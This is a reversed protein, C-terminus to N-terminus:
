VQRGLKTQFAQVITYFNRMDIRSLGLGLSAFAIEQPVAAVGSIIQANGIWVQQSNRVGTTTNLNSSAIGGNLTSIAVGTSTLRSGILMGGSYGSIPITGSITGANQVWTNINNATVQGGVMVGGGALSYYSGFLSSTVTTAFNRVYISIHVDGVAGNINPFWGTLGRNALNAAAIQMGTSAYIWSGQFTINFTTTDKLNWKFSAANNGICPYVVQMKDWLGSGVMGWVLNNVADIEVRSMAYGVSNQAAIYAFVNPHISQPVIGTISTDGIVRTGGDYITTFPM